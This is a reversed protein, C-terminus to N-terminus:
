ASGAIATGAIDATHREVTITQVVSPLSASLSVARVIGWWTAAGTEVFRCLMGRDLVGPLGSGTLVPLTLQVTAQPGGAGLVARGREGCADLDTLLFDTVMPALLDGATGALSVFSSAGQQHGSLYVGNYPPRDARAYSETLAADIHIEVDPAVYPWEHPLERYRPAVSIRQEARDSRVVAGITEAVRQAVALPTGAFTWVKDPVLWDASLWDVALGTYLQAQDVLQSGNAPGDNIWNQPLAYPEGALISLSRGTISVAASGASRSRRIDEVAFRWALGDVTVEIIPLDGTTFRAFLAPGGTASLTWCLGGDADAISLSDFEVAAGDRLDIATMAHVARYSDLTPLIYTPALPDTIAQAGGAPAAPKTFATGTTSILAADRWSLAVDASLLAADRWTLVVDAAIVSPM